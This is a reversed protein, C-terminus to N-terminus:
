NIALNNSLREIPYGREVISKALAAYFDKLASCYITPQDYSRTEANYRNQLKGGGCVTKWYCDQCDKPLKCAFAINKMYTDGFLYSELSTNYIDYQRLEEETLTIHIQDAPGLTGASSITVAPIASTNDSPSFSLTLQNTFLNLYTSLFRVNIRPDDYELWVELLDQLFQSLQENTFPPISSHNYDPLIFDINTVKLDEVFHRFIVSADHDPNIVCLIGIASFKHYTEASQLLRLGQIVRQYTGKGRHDLRYKDHYVEPGDISVGIGIRYRCIIDVWEKSLLMANTQMAFSVKTYPSLALKIAECLEVFKTKNYMLPEGGHYEIGVEDPKIDICGRKLFDCLQEITNPKIYKPHQMWANNGLNFVYCYSCNINCREVIKLIVLIRRKPSSFQM